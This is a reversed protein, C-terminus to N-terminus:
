GERGLVKYIVVIGFTTILLTLFASPFWGLLSPIQLLLTGLLQIVFLLDGIFSIIFDVLSVIVEGISVLVDLIGQM